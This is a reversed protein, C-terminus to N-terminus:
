EVVKLYQVVLSPMEEGKTNAITKRVRGIAVVRKGIYEHWPQGILFEDMNPLFLLLGADTTLRGHIGSDQAFKGVIKVFEGNHEDLEDM